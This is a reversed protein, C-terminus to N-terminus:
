SWDEEEDESDATGWVEVEGASDCVPCENELWVGSGACRPCDAMYDEASEPDAWILGRTFCSSCDILTNEDWQDGSGHCDPCLTEIM